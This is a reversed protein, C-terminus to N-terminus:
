LVIDGDYLVGCYLVGRFVLAFDRGLYDPPFVISGVVESGVFVNAIEPLGNNGLEEYRFECSEFTVVTWGNVVDEAYYYGPLDESADLVGM